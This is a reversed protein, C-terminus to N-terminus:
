LNTIIPKIFFTSNQDNFEDYIEINKENQLTLNAKVIDHNMYSLVKIKYDELECEIVHNNNSLIILNFGEPINNTNANELLFYTNNKQINIWNILQENIHDDIYVVNIRDRNEYLLLNLVIIYKETENLYSNDISITQLLVNLNFDNVEFTIEKKIGVNLIRKLMYFGKDTLLNDFDKRLNEISLFCEPNNNIFEAIESNMITKPKFEFNNDILYDSTLYVFSLDDMKIIENDEDYVICKTKKKNVFYSQLCEIIERKYNSSVLINKNNQKLPIVFTNDDSVIKM